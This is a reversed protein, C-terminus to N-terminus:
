QRYIGRRASNDGPMRIAVARGGPRQSTFVGLLSREALERTTAATKTCECTGLLLLRVTGPRQATTV